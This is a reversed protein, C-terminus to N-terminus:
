KRAGICQRGGQKLTNEEVGICFLPAGFQCPPKDVFQEAAEIARARARQFLLSNEWIDKISQEHLNGASEQLHMCAQVNGYPDIDVGSVGVSCMAPKRQDNDSSDLVFKERSDACVKTDRRREKQLATILGWTEQAPQISLPTTDGNDRPGVPGQFKLPTDLSDCLGFMERIQHENWATPTTVFECRLGIEKATKINNLLRDFSGAVRTQRDHVEATAGHLSVEVSYPEVEKKLREANQQDLLHGNTRVRVVFGFERTMGGIAFFHPHVMPEGGTLMLFLTQMEALDRLLIRYEELTLRQGTKQRDNYCYFCTLNCKYTLELSVSYLLRQESVRRLITNQYM